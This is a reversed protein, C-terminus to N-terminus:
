ARGHPTVERTITRASKPIAYMGILYGLGEGVFPAPVPDHRDDHTM